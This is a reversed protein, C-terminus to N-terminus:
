LSCLATRRLPLSSVTLPAACRCLARGVTVAVAHRHGNRSVQLTLGLNSIISALAALFVGILWSFGSDRMSPPEGARKDTQLQLQLLATVEAVLTELWDGGGVAPPSSMSAVSM